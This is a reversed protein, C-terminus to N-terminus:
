TSHMPIWQIRLKTPQRTTHCLPKHALYPQLVPPLLKDLWNSYTRPWFDLTVSCSVAKKHKYKWYEAWTHVGYINTTDGYMLQFSKWSLYLWIPNSPFPQSNPFSPVKAPLCYYINWTHKYNKIFESFIQDTFPLWIPIKSTFYSRLFTYTYTYMSFLTLNKM